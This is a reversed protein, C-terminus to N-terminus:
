PLAVVYMFLDPLPLPARSRALRYLPKALHDASQGGKQTPVTETM